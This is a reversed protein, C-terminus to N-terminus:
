DRYAGANVLALKLALDTTQAFKFFFCRVKITCARSQVICGLKKVRHRVCKQKDESRRARHSLIPEAAALFRRVHMNDAATPGERWFLASEPSKEM